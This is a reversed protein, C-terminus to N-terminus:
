EYQDTKIQRAIAVLLCLAPLVAIATLAFFLAWNGQLADVVAGSSSGLLTRGLTGISAFLAYQSASFNRDCLSSLFAVFAVNSWASTIGDVIVTVAFLWQEPGYIALASFMLNSAAMAIGAIFLGRIMGFRATFLGGALSVVITVGWNLLKSYHGIETNSFGIEKYFVISMRGLFAEGIKFMFIFAILTIALKFGNNKVFSSFPLVMINTLYAYAYDAASYPKHRQTQSITSTTNASASRSAIVLMSLCISVLGISFLSPVFFISQITEQRVGQAGLLLWVILLAPVLLLFLALTKNWNSTLSASVLARALNDKQAKVRQLSPPEFYRSVLIALAAFLIASLWYIDSWAISPIDSLYLALAGLGSFGTWWGATAMAAAPAVLHDDADSISDIRYADIAIDQTASAVALVLCGIVTQKAAEFPDTSAVFIAAAAMVLLCLIIWSKRQGIQSLLPPAFRDLIPAWLFNVSYAAFIAGAYGINARSLGSDKLWLSLVSGILVWPFGSAMGLFFMRFVRRDSYQQLYFM